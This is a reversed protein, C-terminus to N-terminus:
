GRLESKAMIEMLEAPTRPNPNQAREFGPKARHRMDEGTVPDFWGDRVDEFLKRAEAAQRARIETPPQEPAPLSMFAKAKKASRDARKAAERQQWAPEIFQWLDALAPFFPSKRKHNIIAHDVWQEPVEALDM